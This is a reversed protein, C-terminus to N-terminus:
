QDNYWPLKGASRWLILGGPALVRYLEDLEETIETGQPDFWDLHDMLIAKTISGPKLGSLVRTM